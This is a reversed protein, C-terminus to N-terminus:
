SREDSLIVKWYQERISSSGPPSSSGAAATRPEAAQVQGEEAKAAMEAAAGREAARGQGEEGEAAMQLHEMRIEAEEYRMNAEHVSSEGTISVTQSAQTVDNRVLMLNYGGSAAAAAARQAMTADRGAVQKKFLERRTAVATADLPHQIPQAMPLFGPHPYHLLLSTPAANSSSSFCYDPPTQLLHQHGHGIQLRSMTLAAFPAQPPPLPHLSSPAPAQAPPHLSPVPTPTPSSADAHLPPRQHVKGPMRQEERKLSLRHKQLHSAVNERTIGDVNMLALIKKPAADEGLANYAKLFINHLEPTWIVRPKGRHLQQQQQQGEGALQRRQQGAGGNGDGASPLSSSTATEAASHSSGSKKRKRPKKNREAEMCITSSGGNVVGGNAEPAM